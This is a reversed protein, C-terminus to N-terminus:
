YYSLQQKLQALRGNIRAIENEIAKVQASASDSDSTAQDVSVFLSFNQRTQLARWKQSYANQAQPLEIRLQGLRIELSTIEQQIVARNGLSNGCPSVFIQARVDLHPSMSLVVIALVIFGRSFGSTPFNSSSM